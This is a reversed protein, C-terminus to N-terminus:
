LRLYSHVKDAVAGMDFRPKPQMMGETKKETLMMFDALFYMPGTRQPDETDYLILSRAGVYASISAGPGNFTVVGKSFALMKGVDIWSKLFFPVYLNTKPLRELFPEWLLQVKEQDESAFFVFRQNEFHCILKIWDEEIAAHHIPSLNVAIYPLTDWEEIVPPLERSIIKMRKDLEGGLHTKLLAFTDECFHHGRPRPTKQNLVVTNWGDSFGVRIPAKFAKGLCADAFSNTLSFFIDAKYIKANVAFRHVDFVSTIEGDDFEHYYAKFPLLNLVEIDKKPTILHLEADPYRENLLHLFPFCLIREQLDFPLKVVIHLIEKESSQNQKDM